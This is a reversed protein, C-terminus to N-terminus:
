RLWLQKLLLKVATTEFTKWRRWVHEFYRACLLNVNVNNHVSVFVMRFYGVKVFINKFYLVPGVDDAAILLSNLQAPLISRGVRQLKDSWNKSVSRNKCTLRLVCFTEYIACYTYLLILICIYIIYIPGNM